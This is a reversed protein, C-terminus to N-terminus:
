TLDNKDNFSLKEKKELAESLTVIEFGRLKAFKVCKDRTEFTRAYIGAWGELHGCLASPLRESKRYTWRATTPSQVVAVAGLPKNRKPKNM